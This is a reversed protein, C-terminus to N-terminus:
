YGVENVLSSYYDMEDGGGKKGGKGKGSPGVQPQVAPKVAGLLPYLSDRPGLVAEVDGDWPTETLAALADDLSDEDFLSEHTLLREYLREATLKRVKPFPHGLLDLLALVAAGRVPEKFPILGLFVNIGAMVRVADGSRMVRARALKVLEGAFPSRPEQLAGFVDNALLLDLTRLVPTVLRTQVKGKTSAPASASAGAATAAAGGADTPTAEAAAAGGVAAAIAAAKAESKAAELDWGLLRLLTNGVRSLARMNSAAAKRAGWEKLSASSEKVVSESLGGVSTVMGEVLEPVYVDLDLLQVLVPFCQGPVSWNITGKEGEVAGGVASSRALDHAAKVKSEETGAGAKSESAGGAGASASASASVGSEGEFDDDGDITTDAAASESEAGPVDSGASGVGVPKPPVVSRLTKAHPVGPLEPSLDHLMRSLVAGAVGRLLDLKESSLRLLASVVSASLQGTWLEHSAAWAGGGEGTAPIPEGRAEAEAAAAFEGLADKPMYQERDEASLLMFEREGEPASTTASTTASAAGGDSGAGATADGDLWGEVVKRAISGRGYVFYYHGLAHEDFTLDCVNGDARMAVLTAAGYPTKPLRWGAEWPQAKYAGASEARARAVAADVSLAVRAVRELSRAAAMRVWSGVDGRNDTAYDRTCALLAAVIRDMLAPTVGPRGGLGPVAPGVTEVVSALAVAANRRTEADRRATSREPVTAAILSDVITGLREPQAASCLVGRPLAGLALAMGRRAAPNDDTALAKCFAVPMRKVVDEDDGDSLATATLARLAALALQQIAEKPHRICEDLSKLLRLALRRGIGVGSHSLCEIFRCVAARMYEGGRGRYLRAKEIRPVLNRADSLARSPIYNYPVKALAFVLEAAALCAGHRVLLDSDLALPLLSPFVTEAMYRPDQPALAALSQAALERVSVDWHRLKVDLLHGIFAYRYEAHMSVFPAVELYATTRNGLTFYDAATLITIGYPFNEHGQRGVNEQFAASAARRVNVERDFVACVLMGRALARVHPAMVAPTYARAFAWCVYCAADRVHTGVSHAGRRVDYKLAQLVVPVVSPLRSPLLLGRRALEALALCGGHWAGDGEEPALLELVAGVVDDAFDRPLRGTIRGVGKAASWRVVTDRDRLGTLLMEIIDEIDDPVDFYEDDNGDGAGSATVATDGEAAVSTDVMAVKPTNTQLQATAAAVGAGSLNDLLSRQGRNYRWAVVRPPMYTLGTRQALKVTLKRLLPSAAGGTASIEVVRGFVIPLTDKLVERHGHKAIEVLSTFVGTTQFLDRDDSATSLVDAAWGLFRRLHMSDMDPRTLLRSLCVAAADRTAGSDGLYSQATSIISHILGGSEGTAAAASAGVTSDVTALDFPIMVLISLWLLLGYRTEWTGHESPDQSLLLALVPELDAVAHPFLKVIHKYGRTKCLLYVMQFMRHLQPNRYVQFPFSTPAGDSSAAPAAVASTGSADTAREALVERVKDMLKDIVTPLTADLLLPQEQYLELIKGAERVPESAVSAAQEVSDDDPPVPKGGLGTGAVVDSVLGLFAEREVFFARDQAIFEGDAM